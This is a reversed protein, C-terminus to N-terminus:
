EPDACCRFGTSYDHYTVDHASTVYKCGDGNEHTDLYYGGHFEGRAGNKDTTWEHLNGVMDYLGYANACRPYSATAAVTGPLADLSPDNMVRFDFLESGYLPFLEGLPAVGHTNCAADDENDGYPYTTGDPGGCATKWEVAACLRKGAEFCAQEAENRSIYAQPIANPRSVARVRHGEVSVYPSYARESGDSVVEVISAEFRDVCVSVEGNEVLSMDPPCPGNAQDSQANATAANANRSALVSRVPLRLRAFVRALQDREGVLAAVALFTAVVAFARRRSSSKKKPLSSPPPADYVVSTRSSAPEDDNSTPAAVHPANANMAPRPNAGTVAAEHEAEARARGVSVEFSTPTPSDTETIKPANPTTTTPDSSVGRKKGKRPRPSSGLSKRSRAM